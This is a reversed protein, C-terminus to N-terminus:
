VTSNNIEITIRTGEGPKSHLKFDAGILAARNQMNKLGIGTEASQLTAPNFGVGDDSITLCFTEEAYELSVEINKAISHKIANHLAEQVIRFIVM